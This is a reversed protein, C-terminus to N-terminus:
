QSAEARKLNQAARAYWSGRAEIAQAFAAIARKSNGRVRAAVGADNLRAAYAVDTERARRRPLDSAIAARALELNNITRRAPRTGAAAKELAVVAEAWNGRLMQSWGLNNLVEPQGPAAALAKAYSEDALDFDNRQDAIVGRVNWARWSAGPAAVAREALEAAREVAGSKATSIAARELAAGDRVGAALLADYRASAEAHRNAAFALDALLRDVRAGAGGRAIEAAIMTRAQDLRGARLALDAEAIRDVAPAASAVGAASLLLWVM